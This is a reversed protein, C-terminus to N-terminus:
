DGGNDDAGDCNFWEMTTRLVNDYDGRQAQKQYAAIEEAPVGARRAAGSARGIIFFANGDEGVLRVNVNPYKAM